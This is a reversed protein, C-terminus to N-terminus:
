YKTKSYLYEYYVKEGETITTDKHKDTHGKYHYVKSQIVRENADVTFILVLLMIIVSVVISTEVKKNSTM